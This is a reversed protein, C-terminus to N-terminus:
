TQLPYTVSCTPNFSLPALQRIRELTEVQLSPNRVLACLTAKFFTVSIKIFAWLFLGNLGSLSCLRKKQRDFDRSAM